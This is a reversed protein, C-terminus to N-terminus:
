RTYHDTTTITVGNQEVSINSRLRGVLYPHTEFVPEHEAVEVSQRFLFRGHRLYFGVQGFIELVFLICGAILLNGLVLITFKKISSSGRM